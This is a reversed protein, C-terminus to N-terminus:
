FTEEVVHAQFPLVPVFVIEILTLREREPAPSGQPGGATLRQEALLNAVRAGERPSGGGLEGGM